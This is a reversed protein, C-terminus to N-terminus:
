PETIATLNVRQNWEALLAFYRAFKARQGGSAQPIYKEIFGDIEM